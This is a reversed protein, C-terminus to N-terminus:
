RGGAGGVRFGQGWDFLLTNARTWVRSEMIETTGSVDWGRM